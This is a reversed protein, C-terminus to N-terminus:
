ETVTNNFFYTKLHRKFSNLSAITGLETPLKNWYKPATTGFASGIGKIPIPQELVLAGAQRLRADRRRLHVLKCLYSLALEHSCKHVLVLIKYKIWAHLPLWHLTKLIPTIHEWRTTCTVLRAANNQVRQLRALQTAPLRLLQSNCYDLRSTVLAQVTNRTAETTLYQDFALLRYLHFSCTACVATVQDTMTLHRDM